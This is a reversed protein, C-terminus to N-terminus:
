PVRKAMQLDLVVAFAHRTSQKACTSFKGDPLPPAREVRVERASRGVGTGHLRVLPEVLVRSGHVLPERTTHIAVHGLNASQAVDGNM